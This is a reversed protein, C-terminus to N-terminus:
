NGLGRSGAAQSDAFYASLCCVFLVIDFSARIEVVRAVDVFWFDNLAVYSSYPVSVYYMPM